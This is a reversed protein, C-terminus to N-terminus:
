GMDKLDVWELRPFEDHDDYNPANKGEETQQDLYYVQGSKAREAWARIYTDFDYAIIAEQDEEFSDKSRVFLCGKHGTAVGSTDIVLTDYSYDDAFPLWDKHWCFYEGEEKKERHIDDFMKKTRLVGDLTDFCMGEIDATENDEGGNCVKYFEIFSEPVELGIESLFVRIEEDTAGPKLIESYITVQEKVEKVLEKYKSMAIFNSRYIYM